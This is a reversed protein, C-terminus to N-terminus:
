AILVRDGASFNAVSDSIDLIVIPNQGAADYAVLRAQSVLQQGVRRMRLQMAQAPTDGDVGGTVQEIQMLHFSAQVVDTAALAALVLAIRWLRQTVIVTGTKKGM